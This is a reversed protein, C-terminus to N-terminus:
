DPPHGAAILAAMQEAPPQQALLGDIVGQRDAASRNQSVKWKGVISDIPIEIGIIGKMTAALFDAPADAPRWPAPMRGEQSATLDDLQRRLWAADDVVRAQGGVQVTAYNWTPVVKHTTRKSEYWTPSIYEEPGQFVILCQGDAALAQHVPNACAVHARLTGQAGEDPYLMFPVLDASIGASGGVILLGLPYARILGHKVDLRDEQFAAPLYM